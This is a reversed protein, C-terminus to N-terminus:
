VLIKQIRKTDRTSMEILPHTAIRSQPLAVSPATHALPRPAVQVAVNGRKDKRLEAVIGARAGGQLDASADTRHESRRAEAGDRGASYERSEACSRGCVGRRVARGCQLASGFRPHLSPQRYHNARLRPPCQLPLHPQRRATRATNQPATALPTNAAPKGPNTPRPSVSAPGFSIQGIPVDRAFIGQFRALLLKGTDQLTRAPFQRLFTRARHGPSFCQRCTHVAVRHFVPAM